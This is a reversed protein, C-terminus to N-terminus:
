AETKEYPPLVIETGPEIHRFTTLNNAKAVQLLPIPQGYIKHAMHWLRDVPSVTQVHTLDPSKKGEEKTRKQDSLHEVFSASVKARLPEGQPNFLVYQIDLSKLHCDFTTKKVGFLESKSWAIKLFYPKHTDGDMKHVTELLKAVQDTVPTGQLTNGAITNTNDLYFDLKLEEPPIAGFRGSTGQGGSAQDNNIKLEFKQSLTEPNIPITFSIQPAKESLDKNKYAQIVIKSVNKNVDNTEQAAM